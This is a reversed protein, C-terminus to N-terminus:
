SALLQQLQNVGQERNILGRPPSVTVNPFVDCTEKGIIKAIANAVKQSKTHGCVVGSVTALSVGLADAVMSLSYGENAIAQKIESSKM